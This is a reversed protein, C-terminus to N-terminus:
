GRKELVKKIREMARNINEMSTAYSLRQYGEGREGFAAGPIVAVGAEELLFDALEFSDEGYHAFNPFVYFAGKPEVCSVGEMERLMGMLADRRDRFEKVMKSVIDQSDTLAVVGAKQVFSTACSVSHAQVRNMAQIIEQPGAAYGLRWGTMSYAKSFGNITITREQMGPLSAISVHEGGYIIKEYIEDSIAVLDHDVCLDAIGKLEERDLVAGTPNNPSNLIVAKTKDTIREQVDGAKLRFGDEEG